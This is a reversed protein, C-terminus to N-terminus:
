KKAKATGASSKMHAYQWDASTWAKMIKERDGEKHFNNLFYRTLLRRVTEDPKIKGKEEASMDSLYTACRRLERGTLPLTIPLASFQETSKEVIKVFEQRLKNAYVELGLLVDMDYAQQPSPDPAGNDQGNIYSNWLKIFENEEMNPDDTLDALSDVERAMRLAESYNYQKQGGKRGELYLPPYNRRLTVMRSVTAMQPDFTGPYDPNQSGVIIVTPDVKVVKGSKLKLTLARKESMLSHLLIQSPLPMSNFENFYVVAGPTQIGLLVSSPVDVVYSAGDKVQLTIDSVLEPETTWKSCDTTFLPRNTEACFIDLAVDKGTGAHGEMNIMGEHRELQGRAEVALQELFDETDPDRTWHNQWKPVNGIGNGNRAEPANRIADIEKFIHIPNTQLFEIWEKVIPDRAKRWQEGQGGKWWKGKAEPSKFKPQQTFHSQLKALHSDYAKKITGNEGKMWDLYMSQIERFRSAKMYSPEISKGDVTRLGLRYNSEDPFGEFLRVKRTEGKESIVLSIDGILDNGTAVQGPLPEFSLIVQRQPKEKLKHEWRPFFTNGFPVMQQGTETTKVKSGREIEGLTNAVLVKMRRRLTTAVKPDLKELAAIEDSIMTNSGSKEIYALAQARTKFGREQIRQMFSEIETLALASAVDVRSAAAQRVSAYATAFKKEMKQAIENLKVRAELAAKHVGTVEEPCDRTIAVISEYVQKYEFDRWDNYQVKSTMESLQHEVHAVIEGIQTQVLETQERFLKTTQERYREKLNGVEEATSRDLYGSLIELQAIDQKIEAASTLSLSGMVKKTSRTILEVAKAQSIQVVKAQITAAVGETMYEAADRGLEGKLMLEETKVRELEKTIKELDEITRAQQLQTTFNGELAKRQDALHAYRVARDVTQKSVSAAATDFVNKVEVNALLSAAKKKEVEQAIAALNSGLIAVKDGKIGRVNGQQDIHLYKLSDTMTGVEMLTDKLIVSVKDGNDGHSFIFFNGSSDLQLNSLSKYTKPLHVTQAQWTEPDSGLDLRIIDTGDNKSYYIVSPNDPDICLNNELNTRSDTFLPEGSANDRSFVALGKESARVVYKDGAFVLKASPESTAAFIYQALDNPVNEPPSNADIRQWDAPSSYPVGKDNKTIYAIFRGYSDTTIVYKGDDIVSVNRKDSLAITTNYVAYDSIEQVFHNGAQANLLSLAENRMHLPLESIRIVNKQTKLWEKQGENLEDLVIFEKGELFKKWSNHIWDKGELRGFDDVKIGFEDTLCINAQNPSFLSYKGISIARGAFQTNFPSETALLSLPRFELQPLGTSTEKTPPPM